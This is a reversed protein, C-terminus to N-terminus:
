GNSGTSSPAASTSHHGRPTAPVAQLHSNTEGSRQSARAAQLVQQLCERSHNNAESEQLLIEAFGIIVWIINNFDHAIGGALTGIAQMKQAQRLQNELAFKVPLMECSAWSASWTVPKM